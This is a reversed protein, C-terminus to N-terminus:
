PPPSRPGELKRKKMDEETPFRLHTPTLNWDNGSKELIFFRVDNQGEHYASESVTAAWQDLFGAQQYTRTVAHIKGNISVAIMASTQPASRPTLIVGEYFCPVQIQQKLDVRDGYRLMQMEVAPRDLVKFSKLDRGVLEPAPGIRFLSLPDASDGFRQRIEGPLKSETIKKPDVKIFQTVNTYTRERREEHTTDYVSWGDLRDHLEIGLVDAITPFIDITEVARDNIGGSQQGPRKIFLPIPLVEDENQRTIQRRPQNARFSIGHDATVILLSRDYQGTEKLKAIIRGLVKDTHMLQLLFHQQSQTGELQDQGWTDYAAHTTLDLLEWNEGDPAYRHGSPLYSWPVHPLLLHFFYFAKDPPGDLCRLFHEVQQDRQSGWSYRFIGRLRTTDMDQNELLGFWARPVEPLRIGIETPCIHFLYVRGLTSLIYRIKGAFTRTERIPVTQASGAFRTVPEFAAIEYGGTYRMVNFLHQPIDAPFPMTDHRSYRGTLLAPLAQQTYHHVASTNRFWTTDRALQAFNPFRREDIQREPTLLGGGALEDFVILVVPAQNFQPSRTSPPYSASMGPVIRSVFVAPFIVIGLGAWSILQRMTRFRAYCWTLMIGGVLGACFTLEITQPVRKVVPMVSLTLLVGILTIHVSRYSTRAFRYVLWEIGVLLTPLVISILAILTIIEEQGVQLDVLFTPRENLRDYLPQAVAFSALAFVHLADIWRSPWATPAVPEAPLDPSSSKSQNFPWLKM